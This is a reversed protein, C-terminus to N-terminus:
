GSGMSRSILRKYRFGRVMRHNLMDAAPFLNRFTSQPQAERTDSVGTWQYRRHQQRSGVQLSLRSRGFRIVSM